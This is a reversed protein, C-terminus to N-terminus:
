EITNAPMKTPTPIVAHLGDYWSVDLPANTMLVIADITMIIIQTIADIIGPTITAILWPTNAGAKVMALTGAGTM